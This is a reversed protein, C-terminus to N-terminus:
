RGSPIPLQRIIADSLLDAFEILALHVSDHTAIDGEWDNNLRATVEARILSQQGLMADILTDISWKPDLQVLLAALARANDSWNLFEKTPTGKSGASAAAIFEQTLKVREELLFAIQAGAASTYYPRLVNAIQDANKTLRRAVTEQDRLDGTTSVVLNRLYASQEEWLTRMNLMLGVQADTQQAAAIAPTPASAASPQASSSLM